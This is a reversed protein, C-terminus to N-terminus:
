RLNWAHDVPGAGAGRPYGAAIAGTVYTKAAGVAEPV